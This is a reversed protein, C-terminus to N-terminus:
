LAEILAAAALAGGIMGAAFMRLRRTQESTRTSQSGRSSCNEAIMARQTAALGETLSVAPRWGLVSRARESSFVADNLYFDMRRRYIPPKIKLKACVDEIMAALWLMPKLPLQPGFRSRNSVRALTALMERLPVAEPGAVILSHNAAEPVTCARLFAAALDTVYIMHRRGRGPGFLPFRGRAVSRFLKLLRQDRPGYVATPRLIVFEIGGARARERVQEEAAVKSREYDNWPSLPTREDIVDEGRQGHIGATSCHVFRRVGAAIAAELVNVTGAVNLLEFYESDAESERFAAAFHCVCEAGRMAAALTEPQLVDGRRLIAGRERLYEILAQQRPSDSRYLGIVDHGADLAAEIFHAGIFGTAGTVFIQM